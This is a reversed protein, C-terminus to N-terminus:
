RRSQKGRRLNDAEAVIDEVEERARAVLRRAFRVVQESVQEVIEEAREEVPRDQRPADADDREGSPTTTEAM